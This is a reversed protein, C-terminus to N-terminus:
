DPSLVSVGSGFRGTHAPQESSGSVSGQGSLSSTPTRLSGLGLESGLALLHLRDDIINLDDSTLAGGGDDAAAAQGSQASQAQQHMLSLGSCAGDVMHPTLAEDQDKLFVCRLYRRRKLLLCGRGGRGGHM